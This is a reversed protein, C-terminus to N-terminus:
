SYMIETAIVKADTHIQTHIFFLNCKHLNQMFYVMQHVRSVAIRYYYYRRRLNM